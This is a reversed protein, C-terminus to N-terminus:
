PDVAQGIVEVAPETFPYKQDPLSSQPGVEPGNQYGGSQPPLMAQGRGM